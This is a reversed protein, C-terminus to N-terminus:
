IDENSFHGNMDEAWRRIQNNTEQTNLKLLEKYIKTVLREVTTDNTFIEEWEM